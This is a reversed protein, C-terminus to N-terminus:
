SHQEYNIVAEVFALLEERYFFFEIGPPDTPMERGMEQALTIVEDETM